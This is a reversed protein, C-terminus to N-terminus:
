ECHKYSSEACKQAMEQAQAIQAPTMAKTLDDRQKRANDDGAAASLNLWMHARKYDQLIGVGDRYALGLLAQGIASGQEAALRYWKVAEKDDQPVGEAQQYMTGLNLQAMADGQEAALRFWKSAEKYDQLVGRGERYMKGLMFQATPYGQEALIHFWKVAEKEDKAVGKGDRYMYGLMAQAAAVGQKALARAIPLATAFDGRQYAANADDLPEAVAERNGFLVGVMLTGILLAFRPNKRINSRLHDKKDDDSRCLTLGNTGALKAFAM